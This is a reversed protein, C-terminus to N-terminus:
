KTLDILTKFGGYMMRKLDFPNEQPNMMAALRPDAMVKKNIADRQARSRFVIWSFFVIEGRKLKVSRAFLSKPGKPLDDAACERYELAGHEMWIKGAKGAIRRYAALKTRPVALVFGDVYPM